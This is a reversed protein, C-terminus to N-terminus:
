NLQSILRENLIYMPMLKRGSIASVEIVLKNKNYFSEWSTLAKETFNNPSIIPLIMKLGHNEVNKWFAIRSRSNYDIFALDCETFNLILKEMKLLESLGGLIIRLKIVQDTKVKGKFVIHVANFESLIGGSLFLM